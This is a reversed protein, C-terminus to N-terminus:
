SSFCLWPFAPPIQSWCCMGMLFEWHPIGATGEPTPCGPSPNPIHINRTAELLVRQEEQVLLFREGKTQQREATLHLCGTRIKKVFVIRPVEWFNSIM